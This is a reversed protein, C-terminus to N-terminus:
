VKAPDVWREIYVFSRRQSLREQARKADTGLIRALEAATAAPDQVASPVGYVSPVAVTLALENGQRDVIRGREPPLSLATVLQIEGRKEGREGLLTLHAARLTLLLFAALVVTEAIRLRVRL